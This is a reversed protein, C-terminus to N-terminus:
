AHAGHSAEGPLLPYTKKNTAYNEGAVQAARAFRGLARMLPRCRALQAGDLTRMDDLARVARTVALPADSGYEGLIRGLHALADDLPSPALARHEPLLELTAADRKM